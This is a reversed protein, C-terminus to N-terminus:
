LRSGLLCVRVITGYDEHNPGLCNVCRVKDRNEISLDACSPGVVLVDVTPIARARGTKVCTATDSAFERCDHMLMGLKHGHTKVMFDQKKADNECSVLHEM